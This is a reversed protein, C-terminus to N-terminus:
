GVSKPGYCHIVGMYFCWCLLYPSGIYYASTSATIIFVIILCMMIIGLLWETFLWVEALGSYNHHTQKNNTMQTHTDLLIYVYIGYQKASSSGLLVM